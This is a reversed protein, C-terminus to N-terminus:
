VVSKRDSNSLCEVENEVHELLLNLENNIHSTYKHEISGCVPCEKGSELNNRLAEVSKSVKLVFESQIKKTQDLKETFTKIINESESLGNKIISIDKRHKEILKNNNDKEINLNKLQQYLLNYDSLQNIKTLLLTKNQNILEINNDNLYDKFSRIKDEISVLSEEIKIM